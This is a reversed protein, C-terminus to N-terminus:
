RDINNFLLSNASQSAIGHPIKPERASTRRYISRCSNDALRSCLDVPRGITSPHSRNRRNRRRAPADQACDQPAKGRQQPKALTRDRGRRAQVGPDSLELADLHCARADLSQRVRDQPQQPQAPRRDSRRQRDAGTPACSRHHQRLHQQAPRAPAQAPTDGTFAASGTSSSSSRPPRMTSIPWSRM